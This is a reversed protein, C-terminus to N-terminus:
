FVFFKLNREESITPIYRKFLKQANKVRNISCHSRISIDSEM